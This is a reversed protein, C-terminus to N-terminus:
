LDEDRSRALEHAGGDRPPQRALPEIAQQPRSTSLQVERVLRRDVAVELPLPRLMHEQDRALHAPYQRVAGIGRVEDAVVDQDLGIHDVGRM